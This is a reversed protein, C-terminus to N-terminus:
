KKLTLPVKTVWRLAITAVGAVITLVSVTAALYDTFDWTQSQLFVVVDGSIGILIQLIGLWVMRSESPSKAPEM